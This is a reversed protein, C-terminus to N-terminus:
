NTRRPRASGFPADTRVPSCHGAALSEVNRTVAKMRGAQLNLLQELPTTEAQQRGLQRLQDAVKEFASPMGRGGCLQESDGRDCEAAVRPPTHGGFLVM